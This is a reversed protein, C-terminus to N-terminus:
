RSAERGARSHPESSQRLPWMNAQQRTSVGNRGWNAFPCQFHEGVRADDYRFHRNILEQFNASNPNKQLALGGGQCTMVNARVDTCGELADMLLNFGQTSILLTLKPRQVLLKM